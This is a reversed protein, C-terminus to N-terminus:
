KLFSFAYLRGFFIQLSVQRHMKCIRGKGAVTLYELDARCVLIDFDGFSLLSACIISAQKTDTLNSISLETASGAMICECYASYLMAVPTGAHNRGIHFRRLSTKWRVV